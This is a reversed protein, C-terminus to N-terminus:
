GEGWNRAVLRGGFLNFHRSKLLVVRATQSHVTAIALTVLVLPVEVREGSTAVTEGVATATAVPVAVATLGLADKAACM